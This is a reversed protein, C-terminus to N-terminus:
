EYSPSLLFLLGEIENISPLTTLASKDKQAERARIKGNKFEEEFKDLCQFAAQLQIIIM